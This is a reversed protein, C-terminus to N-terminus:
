KKWWTHRQHQIYSIIVVGLIIKTDGINDELVQM